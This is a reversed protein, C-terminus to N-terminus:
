PAAPLAEVRYFVAPGASPDSDSWLTVDGQSLVDAQSVAWQSLNGSRYVAYRHGPVSSWRLTPGGSEVSVSLVRLLSAPDHPDTGAIREALDPMGDNDNDPDMSDPLFDGDVDAPVSAADLPDATEIVEIRDTFGDGDVDVISLPCVALRYEGTEATGFSNAIVFYTGAIDLTFEQLVANTNRTSTDDIEIVVEFYPNYVLLYSDFDNSYMKFSFSQGPNGQFQYADFYSDDFSMQLDGTELTGPVIQGLHFPSDSSSLLLTYGGSSSFAQNAALTYTGDEPLSYELLSNTGAGGDDDEAIINMDSDYLVLYTDIDPSEMSATIVQGVHGGLIYEDYYTGDALTLDGDGLHGAVQRGFALSASHPTGESLDGFSLTLSYAGTDNEAYANALIHYTGGYPIRLLIQANTNADSIDDGHALTSFFPDALILYADFDNSTLTIKVVQGAIGAFAYQDYYTGDNMVLDGSTLMGIRTQGLAMLSRPLIGRDAFHSTITSAHVGSYLADDALLLAELGDSFQSSGDVYFISELVLKDVVEGGLTERLRWLACSWIEGDDHSEGTMDSPYVKNSDLRRIGIPTNAVGDWQGIAAPEFGEDAFFSAALYDSTGESMADCEPDFAPERVIDYALAHGYEHLIIYADEADDVGGDGLAIFHIMPSYWSNDEETAHADALVQMFPFSIDLDNRLYRQYEQVHYYIMVEEFGPQSRDYQFDLDESYARPFTLGTDVYPGRLYGTNDLDDLTVSLYAGEPVASASDGQDSLDKTRLAVVPNPDFVRGQGAAFVRIDRTSLITGERADVMVVWDGCPQRAPISVKWALIGPSPEPLVVKEASIPGRLTGSLGIHNRSISIAEDMSLRAELDPQLDPLARSDVAQVRGDKLLHVKIKGGEVPIGGCLQRFTVHRAASSESSRSLRVDSLDSKLSLRRHHEKLFDTAIREPPQKTKNGFPGVLKVRNAASPSTPSRRPNNAGYGLADALANGGALFPQKGSLVHPISKTSKPSTKRHVTSSSTAPHAKTAAPPLSKPSVGPDPVFLVSLLALVFPKSNM